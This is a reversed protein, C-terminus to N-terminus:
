YQELTVRGVGIPDGGDLSDIVGPLWREIGREIGLVPGARRVRRTARTLPMGYGCGLLSATLVLIRRLTRLPVRGSARTRESSCLLPSRNRLSRGSFSGSRVTRGSMTNVRALNATNM